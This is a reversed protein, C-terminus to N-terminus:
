VTVGTLEYDSSDVIKVMYSEGIELEKEQAIVFIVPDVDPAEGYSRGVYFIGDESISDITVRVITNLRADNAAKSIERQIEYIEQYRKEKVEEDIQNPMDYAATGEEPSFTFCGLRDFKWRKINEKLNNFAEETEGPFGVMVTTRVILDPIRKRLNTLREDILEVTDRRNMASLIGNDAHQIPIDLYHAVKKSNAMTDIFEDDLGNMYGYMIRITELGEIAELRRILEPLTRKGYLDLGYNTTDQAALILERYGRSVLNNAEKLVEEIPRSIFDGRIIPIACYTCKNMCGEGIKLWAYTGTSIEREPMLQAIGGVGSTYESQFSDSEFLSAVAECIDQYHATGLVISVEPLSELIDKGYRQPLCGTVIIKKDAGNKYDSVSLIADIAEKKASEIFGCSNIVVVDADDIGEVITYGADKLLKIMCEADVLNKSCGLAVLAIKIDSNNM